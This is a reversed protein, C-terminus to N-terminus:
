RPEATGIDTVTKPVGSKEIETLGCVNRIEAPVEAVELTVSDLRLWNEPLPVSATLTFRRQQGPAGCGVAANLEFENVKVAPLVITRNSNSEAGLM